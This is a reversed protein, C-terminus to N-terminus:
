RLIFFSVDLEESIEEADAANEPSKRLLKDLKDLYGGESVLLTKLEGYQASLHEVEATRAYVQSTVQNWRANLKTLQKALVSFNSDRKNHIRDDGLLLTESGTENLERFNVTMQECSEKLVQFKSKLQFLDNLNELQSNTTSPTNLELDDLWEEMQNARTLIEETQLDFEKISQADNLDETKEDVLRTIASKMDVWSEEFQKFDRKWETWETGNEEGCVEQVEKIEDALTEMDALRKELEEKSTENAHQKFWDRADALALKIGTLSKYFKEKKFDIKASEVMDEIRFGISDYKSGLEQIHQDEIGVEGEKKCDDLLVKAKEYDDVQAKLKEQLKELIALQNKLDLQHLDSITTEMDDVFYVMDMISENLKLVKESDEKKIPEVEMQAVCDHETIKKGDLEAMKAVFNEWGAPTSIKRVSQKEVAFGMGEIRNEQVELILNLAEIRDNIGEVKEGINLTSLGADKLSQVTGELAEVNAQLTHLDNKCFQLCKIRDMAEGIEAVEKGEMSKLSGERSNLWANIIRHQETLKTWKFSLDQLNEWRKGTWKVVHSWREELAVLKDELDRFYESDEIIVLNSLSEVLAQQAELDAQLKKHEEMQQRLEDPGPGTESMRSLRDETATLFNKLEDVREFQTKALQQHVKTQTDLAKIRLAEWRENLLFLQHKIENREEISLGSSETLLKTGEELASGVSVQYDALKLMFEEHNQFQKRSDALDVCVPPDSAITDEAKLLKELVDEIATQYDTIEISQTSLPRQTVKLGEKLHVEVDENAQYGSHHEISQVIKVDPSIFSNRPESTLRRLDEISKAMSVDDLGPHLKVKKNETEGDSESHMEKLLQIEDLGDDDTLRHDDDLHNKHISNYLMMIYMLISKKDLLFLERSYSSSSTKCNIEGPRVCNVDDPDLLPEVQLQEQAVEFAKKLRAIPHLKKAAAMDFKVPITENLIYLFALGDNWSSTFDNVKLRSFNVKTFNKENCKLCFKGTANPSDVCGRKSLNRSVASRKRRSLSSGM